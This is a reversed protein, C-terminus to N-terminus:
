PTQTMQLISVSANNEKGEEREGKVKEKVQDSTVWGLGEM